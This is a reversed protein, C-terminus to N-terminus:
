HRPAVKYTRWCKLVLRILSHRRGGSRTSTGTDKCNTETDNNAEKCTTDTDNDNKDTTMKSTDKVANM